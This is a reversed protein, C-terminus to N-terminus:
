EVAKYIIDLPFGKRYLFGIMKQKEEYTANGKDYKKKQILREILEPESTVANDEECQMLANEIDEQSVGKRMLENKIQKISKSSSKSGIYSTSYRMDDIYGYSMVYAIAKDIVEDPYIGARLKDEIQYRTYDRSKLLNMCRLKARKVLVEDVISTYIEQTIEKDKAIGYKRLESKYLSFTAGVDTSVKVKTKSIDEIDTILM